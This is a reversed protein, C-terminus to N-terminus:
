QNGGIKKSLYFIDRSKNSIMGELHKINSAIVQLAEKKRNLELHRNNTVDILSQKLYALGEKMTVLDKEWRALAETRKQLKTKM